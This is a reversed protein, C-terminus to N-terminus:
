TLTPHGLAFLSRNARYLEGKAALYGAIIPWGPVPDPWFGRAQLARSVEPLGMSLALAAALIEPATPEAGSLLEEVGPLGM